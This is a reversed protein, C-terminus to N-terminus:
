CLHETSSPTDLLPLEPWLMTMANIYFEGWSGTPDWPIFSFIGHPGVSIDWSCGMFVGYDYGIIVMYFVTCMRYGM